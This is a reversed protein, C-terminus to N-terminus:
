WVPLLSSGWSSGGGFCHSAGAVQLRDTPRAPHLVTCHEPAFRLASTLAEPVVERVILTAAECICDPCRAAPRAFDLLYVCIHIAEKSQEIGLASWM